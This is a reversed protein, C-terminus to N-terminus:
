DLRRPFYVWKALENAAARGIGSGAGTIVAVRGTHFVPHAARDLPSHATDEIKYTVGAGPLTYRSPSAGRSRSGLPMTTPCIRLPHISPSSLSLSSSPLSDIAVFDSNQPYKYVESAKPSFRNASSLVKYSGASSGLREQRHRIRVESKIFKSLYRLRM